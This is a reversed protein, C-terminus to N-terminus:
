WEEEEDPDFPLIGDNEEYAIAVERCRKELIAGAKTQEKRKGLTFWNKYDKEYVVELDGFNEIQGTSNGVDNGRKILVAVLFLALSFGFFIGILLGTMM